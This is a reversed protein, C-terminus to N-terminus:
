ILCHPNLPLAYSFANVLARPPPADDSSNYLNSSSLSRPRYARLSAELAQPTGDLIPQLCVFVLSAIWPLFDALTRLRFM